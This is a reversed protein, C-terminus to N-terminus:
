YNRPSKQMSHLVLRTELAVLNIYCANLNYVVQNHSCEFNQYTECDALLSSCCTCTSTATLPPQSGRTLPQMLGM